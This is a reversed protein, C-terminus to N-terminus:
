FILKIIKLILWCGFALGWSFPVVFGMCSLIVLIIKLGLSCLLFDLFLLLITTM